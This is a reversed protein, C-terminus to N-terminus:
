RGTFRRLAWLVLRDRDKSDRKRDHLHLGEVLATIARAAMFADGDTLGERQFAEQLSREAVEHFGHHFEAVAPVHAARDHVTATLSATRDLEHLAALVLETLPPLPETLLRALAEELRRRLVAVFLDDKTPFYWHVSNTAIGAQAAIAAITTNRFGGPGLFAAEAADLIEEEKLQRDVGARNKPM